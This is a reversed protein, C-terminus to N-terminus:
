EVDLYAGVIDLIDEAGDDSVGLVPRAPIESRRGRGARGGLQQIAFYEVNSGVASFDPGADTSISTAMRGTRQLMRGPWYGLRTREEITGQALQQWPTGDPASEAELAQEAEDALVGSVERMAPTMDEMRGALEALLAKVEANDFDIRIAAM